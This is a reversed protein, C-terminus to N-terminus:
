SPPPGASPVPSPTGEPGASPGPSPKAQALFTMDPLLPRSLDMHGGLTDVPKDDVLLQVRKVAPFNAAFSNVISYVALLEAQSGVVPSGLVEKSLDVYAVGRATVFVELIRTGPALPALLGTQSGKVLEEVVSRLQRALDASFPVSREESLLGAQDPSPFYLKVSITRQAEGGEPARGEAAGAGAASADEEAASIPQRLFRAWRPATFALLGAFVVLALVTLFNATRRTM